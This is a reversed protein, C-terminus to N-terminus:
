LNEAVVGELRAGAALGPQGASRGHGVRAHGATIDKRGHLPSPLSAVSRKSPRKPRPKM